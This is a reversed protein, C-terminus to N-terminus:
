IASDGRDGTRIRLVDHIDAVFIKGDGFKGTKASEQIVKMAEALQDDRVLIELKLKPQFEAKYEVGRYHEAHGKQRGFGRVETVTMGHVDVKDLAERVEELKHPRIICELKKM